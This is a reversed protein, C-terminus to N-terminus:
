KAAPAAPAAPAAGAPQSMNMGACKGEMAKSQQAPDNKAGNMMAGCNMGASQMKQGGCKGEGCVMDKSDKGAEAVQMYGNGLEKVAFPNEAANVSGVLSGVIAVGVIGSINKKSM